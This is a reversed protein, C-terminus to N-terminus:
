AAAFKREQAPASMIKRAAARASAVAGDVLMGEAGVWDGAMTVGPLNLADVGPRGAPTVVAHTVALEPLYRAFTSHQRWAPMALDAFRELEERQAREGTRLYKAVHVLHAGEPALRATASHRSFYFPTDMGLAFVAAQRPLSKMALDLCAARIQTLGPALGAMRVGTLSEVADPTVALVVGDCVVDRGAVRVRGSEVREVAAGTEVRVGLSAARDALGAVIMQWGGDLYLVGNKTAFRVQQLAARASMTDLANSYTSVRFLAELFLRARSPRERVGFKEDLWDSVTASAKPTDGMLWQFARAASWKELGRFLGSTLLRVPDAPFAFLGGGLVAYADGKLRPVRGAVRVKWETFTRHAIGNRYLAHPGHNLSFGDRTETGGRGGLKRSQEYVTVRAGGAGALECAATLGAIGGGVVIYDM